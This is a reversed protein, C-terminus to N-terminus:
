FTDSVTFNVMGTILTGHAGFRFFIVVGGWIESESIKNLDYIIM